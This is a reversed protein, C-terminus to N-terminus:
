AECAVGGKEAEGIDKLIKRAREPTLKGYAEGNIMIVPALSCCGLCAVNELTFLGDATTEGPKIGLEDCIASGVAQSGLVHCATGQCQLIIYKGVPNLRFQSYFTAIGYIKARKSGTNDAIAQLAALPLYGYIEQTKQLIAILSGQKGAYEKFVPALLSLDVDGDAFETEPEKERSNGM